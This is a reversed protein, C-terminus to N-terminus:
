SITQETLPKPIEESLRPRQLTVGAGVQQGGEHGAEAEPATQKPLHLSSSRGAGIAM